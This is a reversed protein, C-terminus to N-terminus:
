LLRCILWVIVVFFIVCMLMDCFVLESLIVEVLLRLLLRLNMECVGDCIIFLLIM